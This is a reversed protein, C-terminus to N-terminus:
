SIPRKRCDRHEDMFEIIGRIIGSFRKATLIREKRCVTCRLHRGGNPEIQLWPRKRLGWLSGLTKTLSQFRNAAHRDAEYMSAVLIMEEVADSFSCKRGALNPGPDMEAAQWSRVAQKTRATMYVNQASRPIARRPRGGRNKKPTGM